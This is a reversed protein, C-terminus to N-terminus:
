LAMLKTPTDIETEVRKKKYISHCVQWKFRVKTNLSILIKVYIEYGQYYLHSRTKVRYQNTRYSRRQPNQQNQVAKSWHDAVAFATIFKVQQWTPIFIRCVDALTYWISIQLHKSECDQKSKCFLFLEEEVAVPKFFLTCPSTGFTFFSTNQAARKMEEEKQLSWHCQNESLTCTFVFTWFSM